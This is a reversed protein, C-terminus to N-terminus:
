ETIYNGSKSINYGYLEVAMRGNTSIVSDNDYVLKITLNGTSIHLSLSLNYTYVGGTMYGSYIAAGSLTISGERAPTSFNKFELSTIYFSSTVNGSYTISINTSQKEIGKFTVNNNNLTLNLQYYPNLNGLFISKSYIMNGGQSVRLYNNGSTAMYTGNGTCTTGGDLTYNYPKGTNNTINISILYPNITQHVTNNGTVDVGFYKSVYNINNYAFNYFGAPVDYEYYTGTLNSNVSFSPVSFVGGRATLNSNAVSSNGHLPFASNLVVTFIFTARETMNFRATNNNSTNYHIVSSNYYLTYASMTYNGSYKLFLKAMGSVNTMGKYSYVAGDFKMLVVFQTNNLKKGLDITINKDLIGTINDTNLGGSMISNNLYPVLTSVNTSSPVQNIGNGIPNAPLLSINKTKNSDLSIPSSYNQFGPSSYSINYNGEPLTINYSGNSSTNFTRSMTSNSVTITGSLPLNNNSNSVNGSLTFNKPVESVNSIPHKGSILHDTPNYGPYPINAGAFVMAILIASVAVAVIVKHNL